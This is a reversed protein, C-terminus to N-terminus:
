LLTEKYVTRMRSMSAYKSELLFIYYQYPIHCISRIVVEKITGYMPFQNLRNTASIVRFVLM